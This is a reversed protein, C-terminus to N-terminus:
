LYESRARLEGGEGRALSWLMEVHLKKLAKCHPSPARPDGGSVLQEGRCDGACWHRFPCRACAPLSEVHTQSRVAEMAPADLVLSALDREGLRGAAHEPRVHNPCPYITGDADVFIVRRAAGCSTRRGSLGLVSRVISFWDRVLLPRLEPRAALITRLRRWALLQNPLAAGRGGGIARLPIFRAEAVGLSRALDLYPEFDEPGGADYVKSLITHVGADVLRRAGEVALAHVGPGRLADHAEPRSHDLSIQVEVRRAALAAVLDSSLRTGNTSITVAPEFLGEVGDLFALLRAPDVTPEGGLVILSAGTELAERGRRLGEVLARVPMEESRHDRNYCFPCRLNCRNGLNLTLNAISVPEDPLTEGGARTSLLGRRLLIQLVPEAEEPRSGRRRLVEWLRRKGDFDEYFAHLEEDMAMWQGLEGWVLLHVGDRVEHLDAARAHLVLETPM